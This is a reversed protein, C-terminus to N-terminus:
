STRDAAEGRAALDTIEEIMRPWLPRPLDHGMGSYGVFTAGPITRAVAIGGSVHVLPDALGHMVLTPATIRALDKTRNPQWISAALQRYYGAPDHSRDYSRGALDRLRDEDIADKTGITRFTDLAAEIASERGDVHRRKVLRPAIRPHPRGVLRSGTSTMILTLSRVREPHALALTQAIFGGMSVGVLHASRLDLADLLGAADEAMDVVSYPPKRRRALLDSLKPVRVGDLHTSLGVDRNDYRIVYHGRGALSACFEDAWGIMQVGLGMILLVPPATPDGFTEYAITLGNAEAYRTQPAAVATTTVDAMMASLEPPNAAVTRIVAM